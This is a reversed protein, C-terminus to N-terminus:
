KGSIAGDDKGVINIFQSPQWDLCENIKIFMKNHINESIVKKVGTARIKQTLCTMKVFM